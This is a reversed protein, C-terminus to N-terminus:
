LSLFRLSLLQGNNNNRAGLFLFRLVEMMGRVFFCSHFDERKLIKTYSTNELPVRKAGCQFVGDDDHSGLFNTTREAFCTTASVFVGALKLVRFALRNRLRGRAYAEFEPISLTRTAVRAAEHVAICVRTKLGPSVADQLASGLITCAAVAALREVFCAAAERQILPGLGLVLPAASLANVVVVRCCIRCLRIVALLLFLTAGPFLDLSEHAPVAAIFTM